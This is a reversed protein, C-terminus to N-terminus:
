GDDDLQRKLEALTELAELPTTTAVDLGQLRERVDVPVAAEENTAENTGEGEVAASGSGNAAVDGNWNQPPTEGDSDSEGVGDAGTDLLSRARDVVADEIGATAAVEVGYSADATGPEIEHEFMVGDDTQRTKFYLNQARDLAAAVGTLDHHHTAFLTMARVEDHLYETVAQAIAQGDATSTGRGVEDLLVLSSDTAGELITALETMEVMFTSRGGAIDDSAGVRTFIRDVLQVRAEAAPVFSGAQALVVILAVQRMYTSKGSMNPGTIVAVHRGSDLHTDNPVFATETREVVPHRGGEIHIEGAGIAPRAYDHKAAM